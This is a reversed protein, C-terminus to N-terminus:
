LQLPIAAFTEGELRRRQLYYTRWSSQQYRQGDSFAHMCTHRKGRGGDAGLHQSLLRFASVHKVGTDENRTIDAISNETLGAM